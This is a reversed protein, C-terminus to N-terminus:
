RELIISLRNVEPNIQYAGSGNKVVKERKYMNLLPACRKEKEEFKEIRLELKKIKELLKEKETEWDEKQSELSANMSRTVTNLETFTINGFASESEEEDLDEKEQNESIIKFYNYKNFHKGKPDNSRRNCTDKEFLTIQSKTPSNFLKCIAAKIAKHSDKEGIQNLMWQYNSVFREPGLKVKEFMRERRAKSNWGKIKRLNNIEGNGVVDSGNLVIKEICMIAKM